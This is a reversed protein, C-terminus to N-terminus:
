NGPGLPPPGTQQPLPPGNVPVLHADIQRIIRESLPTDGWIGVRVGVHTWKGEAPIRAAQPELKITIKDGDGTQTVIKGSDHDREAQLLPMQLDGLAFKTAEWTQDFDAHYDHLVEAQMYMYGGAGAGAAAGVGLAVALCGSNSVLLVLAAVCPLWRVLATPRM